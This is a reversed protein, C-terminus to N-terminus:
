EVTVPIALDYGDAQIFLTTNGREVGYIVFYWRSDDPGKCLTTEYDLTATGLIAPNGSHISVHRKKNVYGDDDIPVVRFAVVTGRDLRAETPGMSRGNVVCIEVHDVGVCSALVGAFLTLVVGWCVARLRAYTRGSM